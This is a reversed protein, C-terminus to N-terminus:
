PMPLLGEALVNWGGAKPFGPCPSGAGDWGGAMLGIAALFASNVPLYAVCGNPEAPRRVYGCPMFRIESAGSAVIDVARGADGLRAACMAFQGVSWSVCKRIGNRRLLEEFTRRMTEVDVVPTGPLYGFALIMSTPLPGKGEYLDPITEIELYRGGGTPLPALKGRVEDWHPDRALGLRERWVNATSLGYHWFALEFTPNRTTNQGARESVNKVPPGLVYRDEGKEYFAYSALYEASAFVIDGYAELTAAEPRARFVLECLYIPNPHNWIIFPNIRGPTPRGDIGAMKPWQAGRFGDDRAAKLARPLISKYWSLGKELLSVRGWQYFPAAHWFYMETNHKGFWSIQALGTEAPPMSGAYHVRMLYLSLITRRELEFARADDCGSFDVLGGELWYEKWGRASSAELGGFDLPDCAPKGDELFELCVWASEAGPFALRLDHPGERRLGSAPSSTLVVRYTLDDLKREIVHRGPGDPDAKTAHRGDEGWVLPPNNGKGLDHRYPFRLRFGLRGAALLGSAISFGVASREAHALTRVSVPVGALRFDSRAEGTWLDLSRSVAGVDFESVDRGDLSLGITGLPARHPNERFYRGAPGDQLSAYRVSRGHFDSPEMADELRLGEPNPYSHWAWSSLTELPIGREWHSGEFCQTGTADMTYAFDGNGVTFAAEPDLDASRVTHRRVVLERDISRGM